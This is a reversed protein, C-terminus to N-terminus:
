LSSENHCFVTVIENIDSNCDWMLESLLGVSLHIESEWMGDEVLATILRDHVPAEAILTILKKLKDSQALWYPAAYRWYFNREENRKAIFHPDAKGLIHFGQQHEFKDWNLVTFGKFVAGFREDEGRLSLLQRTYEYTQDFDEIRKPDYYYPFSGVDEWVISMRNDIANFKNCESQISTAHLGFQIWLDPYKAYVISSINNVWDIVLDSISKGGTTTENTETFAQFYIGDSGLDRYQQEYTDLVFNTWKELDEHSQPDVPQGWCWSFGWIIKVGKSHAYKVVEGANIPAFDNWIILTNLKLESMNDIYKMYDYIVHGWTWLGRYEISPASKRSFPLAPDIFPVYQKNYHYGHYKMEHNIYYRNFDAVAYLVGSDDAGQLVIINRQKNRPNPFVKISYGEKHTEPEFFGQESFKRLYSNNCLTGIFILNEEGNLNIEENAPTVTLIYPVYKQVLGYIRNVAQRQVGEYNGYVIRFRNNGYGTYNM